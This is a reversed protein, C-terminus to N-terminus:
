SVILRGNSVGCPVSSLCAITHCVEDRASDQDREHMTQIHKEELRADFAM